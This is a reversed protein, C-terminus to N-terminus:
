GKGHERSEITWVLQRIGAAWDPYLNLWQLDTLTQGESITLDPIDCETLRVPLFWTRDGRMKRMREIAVLLEENMYSEDKNWYSESFCALFYYGQQIAKRIARKWPIGVSLQEKDLWVRIGEKRLDRALKSVLELDEAVYSIFVHDDRAAAAPPTGHVLPPWQRGSAFLKEFEGPRFLRNAPTREECPLDLFVYACQVEKIIWGDVATGFLKLGTLNAESLDAGVLHAHRFDANRLSTKRLRATWLDASWLDAEELNAEEMISQGFNVGRFNARALCAGTLDSSFLYSGSVDAHTFDADVLRSNGLDADTIQSGALSASILQSSSLSAKYLNTASLDIHGLQCGRLNVGSLDVEWAYGGRHRSPSRTGDRRRRTRWKNWYAIDGAEVAKLLIALATADGDFTPQDASLPTSKKPSM